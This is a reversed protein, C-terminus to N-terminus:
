SHSSSVSLVGVEPAILAEAMFLLVKNADEKWRSVLGLALQVMATLVCSELAAVDALLVQMCTMMAQCPICSVACSGKSPLHFYSIGGEYLLM